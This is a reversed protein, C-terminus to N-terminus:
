LRRLMEAFRAVVDDWRHNAEVFRRGAEGM